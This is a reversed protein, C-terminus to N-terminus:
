NLKFFFRLGKVFIFSLIDSNMFITILKYKIGGYTVDNLNKIPYANMSKLDQKMEKMEKYPANSKAFRILSFLSYSEQKSKIKAVTKHNVPDLAKVTDLIGKMQEIAYLSDAIHRKYHANSKKKTTSDAREVYRYIDIPIYAARTAKIFLSPTFYSDNVFRKTEFKLETELLFSKKVLYWWVEVRYDKHEAIFDVGNYVPLPEEITDIYGKSALLNLKSTREVGFGIIDLNNAEAKELVDNLSNYALYDDGDLFYLFKGKALKLGAERAGGLGQNKQTHIIVNDAASAHKEAIALSNDTSGDNVVIIEYNKKDINQNIVSDLCNGIYDEINYTPIIISLQM